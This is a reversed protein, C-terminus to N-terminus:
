GGIQPIGQTFLGVVHAPRHSLSICQRLIPRKAELIVVAIMVIIHQKGHLRKKLAGARAFANPFPRLGYSAPRPRLRLAGMGDVPKLTVAVKDPEITYGGGSMVDVLIGVLGVFIVNGAIWGSIHSEARSQSEEFGEKTLVM